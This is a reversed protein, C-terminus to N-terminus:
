AEDEPPFLEDWCSPCLATIEYERADLNPLLEPAVDVRCRICQRAQQAEGPTWGYLRVAM